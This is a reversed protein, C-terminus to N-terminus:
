TECIIKKRPGKPGPKTDRQAFENLVDSSITWLNGFRDSQLRGSRCLKRVWDPTVKLREAAQEVTLVQSM